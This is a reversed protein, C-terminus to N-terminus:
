FRFTEVKPEIHAEDMMQRIQKVVKPQKQALDTTEGPDKELDYLEIEKNEKKIQRWLGKWKGWRLAKFGQGGSYEWYLYQHQQQKEGTLEPLISIGDTAPIEAGSIQCFTPLFDWTACILNSTAQPKVKGPWSVILPVRIGGEHLTAKGWGKGAKFPGGSNFWDPDCGGKNASGNDSTFIIMTNDYIGLQKLVDVLAGVQEDLASVMAAYTAKPYRSPYYGNNGIYPEEEGFKEHYYKVWKEPAQLAMHPITTTWALLFPNDKNGKVFSVIEDYMLDPSYVGENFRDYHCRDYKDVNGPIEYKGPQYIRNPLYEREQNRYLFPPYYNHAQRQCNYGYFFDFGMKEPAGESGPNGLGWKGICGTTYGAQRLLLPFTVTGAPMPRQGELAADKYMATHSNVDGRYAMEDNGRIYAHGTHMGTFLSCRSPSSLSAGAYYQTFRMGEQALKDINPTEIKQQGYCGLDGYGLDDALIFIINPKEVKAADQASLTHCTGTVTLGAFM